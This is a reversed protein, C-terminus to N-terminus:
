RENICREFVAYIFSIKTSAVPSTEGEPETPAEPKKSDLTTWRVVAGWSRQKRKKENNQQTRSKQGHNIKKKRCFFSYREISAKETSAVPSSGVAEADRVCREVM